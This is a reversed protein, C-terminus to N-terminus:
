WTAPPLSSLWAHPWVQGGAQLGQPRDHGRDARDLGPACGFAKNPETLTAGDTFSSATGGAEEVLLLGGIVDWSNCYMTACGDLRGDAVHCMMLATSGM